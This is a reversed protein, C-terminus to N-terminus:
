AKPYYNHCRHCLPLNQYWHDATRFRDDALKTPCKNVTSYWAGLHGLEEGVTGVLITVFCYTFLKSWLCLAFFIIIRLM